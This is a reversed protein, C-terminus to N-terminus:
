HEPLYATRVTMSPTSCASSPLSTTCHVWVCFADAVGPPVSDSNWGSDPHRQSTGNSAQHRVAFDCVEDAHRPFGLGSSLESRYTCWRTCLAVSRERIRLSNSFNLPELLNHRTDKSRTLDDVPSSNGLCLLCLALSNRTKCHTAGFSRARPRM